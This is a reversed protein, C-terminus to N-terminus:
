NQAAAALRAAHAAMRQEHGAFRWSECRASVDGHRVVTMKCLALAVCRECAAAGDDRGRALGTVPRGCYRCRVPEGDPGTVIARRRPRGGHTGPRVQGRRAAHHERAGGRM